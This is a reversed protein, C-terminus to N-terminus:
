CLCRPLQGKIFSINLGIEMVRVSTQMAPLGTDLIGRCQIGSTVLVALMLQMLKLMM